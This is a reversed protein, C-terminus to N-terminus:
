AQYNRETWRQTNGLLRRAARMGKQSSPPEESDRDMHDYMHGVKYRTSCCPYRSRENHDTLLILALFLSVLFFFCFGIIEKNTETKFLFNIFYTVPSEIDNYVNFLRLFFLTTSTLNAEEELGVLSCPRGWMGRHHSPIKSYHALQGPVDHAAVLVLQKRYVPALGLQRRQVLSVLQTSDALM